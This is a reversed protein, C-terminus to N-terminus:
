PVRGVAGVGAEHAVGARVSFRSTTTTLRTVQYGHEWAADSGVALRRVRHITREWTERARLRRSADTQMAAMTGMARILSRHAGWTAAAYCRTLAICVLM